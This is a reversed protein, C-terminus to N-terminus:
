NRVLMTLGQANNMSKEELLARADALFKPTHEFHKSLAQVAKVVHDASFAEGYYGSIGILVGKILAFQTVLSAYGKEFEQPQQQQSSNKCFPFNSRFIQNVLYNELIYPHKSFFPLYVDAYGDQYRAIQAELAVGPAHKVGELFAQLTERLRPAVYHLDKTRLNVLLLVMSLQTALDPQITEMASRLSGARVAQSFGDLFQPFTSKLEGRDLADLRRSFYGLLFLRQWLPYDRNLVLRIAFERIAWFYRVLRVPASPRDDWTIHHYGPEKSEMLKPDLLIFRAAEPCSLSLSEEKLEDIARCTRPYTKCVTCLYDEGIEAQIRCLNEPTLLPCAGNPLMHIQAYENPPVAQDKAEPARVIHTDIAARLDGDALAQYKEYSAQDVAVRWGWCCSDECAPGICRFRGGYTPRILVIKRM